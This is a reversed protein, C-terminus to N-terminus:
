EKHNKILSKIKEVVDGSDLGVKSCLDGITSKGLTLMGIPSTLAKFKDSIKALEDKLFPCKTLLEKVVTNETISSLNIM